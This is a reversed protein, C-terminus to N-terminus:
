ILEITAAPKTTVEYGFFGLEDYRDLIFDGLQSLHKFDVQTPIATMYDLTDVARLVIGYSGQKRQALLPVIRCVDSISGTIENQLRLINLWSASRWSQFGDAKLTMVRGIVRRDGKVGISEDQLIQAKVSKKLYKEAIVSGAHSEYAVANNLLIAFCQSPKYRELEKEVKANIRRLLDIKKRTLRGAVRCAL